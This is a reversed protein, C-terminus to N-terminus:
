CGGDILADPEGAEVGLVEFGRGLGIVEVGHLLDEPAAVREDRARM